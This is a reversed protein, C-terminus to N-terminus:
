QEVRPLNDLRFPASTADVRWNAVVDDGSAYQEFLRNIIATSMPVGQESGMGPMSNKAVWKRIAGLKEQEIPNLLLECRLTLPRTSPLSATHFVRALRLPALFGRVEAPSNLRRSDVVTNEMSTVVIFQQDWLDYRITIEAARQQLTDVGDLLSSRVFIRHTLGSTIEKGFEAPLELGSVTISVQAEALSATVEAAEAGACCLWLSLLIVRTV